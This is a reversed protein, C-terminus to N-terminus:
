HNYYGAKFLNLKKLQFIIKTRILNLMLFVLIGPFNNRLIRTM